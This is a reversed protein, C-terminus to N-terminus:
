RSEEWRHGNQFIFVTSSDTPMKETLTYDAWEGMKVSYIPNNKNFDWVGNTWWWNGYQNFVVHRGGTPDREVRLGDTPREMNYQCVELMEGDFKRGTALEMAEEFGSAGGFLRFGYTGRYNEPLGLIVVRKADWWRFDKILAAQMEHNEKWAGVTKKLFVFSVAFLGLFLAIRINKNLFLSLVAASMWWFIAGFYGYRDNEGWLLWYFFLNCAPAIALFFWGLGIGAWGFFLPQSERKKRFFSFAVLLFFGLFLVIGAWQWGPLDFKGFWKEKIPHEFYRLFVANKVFYKLATAAMNMPKVSLHEAAGYHGVLDHLFIKNLLFFLGWGVIGPAVLRLFWGGIKAKQGTSFAWGLVLVAVMVPFVLAIELSFIAALFCVNVLILDRPRNKELFSLAARLGFLCLVTMLLYHLCVRWIIVEASYPSILFLIAGGLLTMKQPIDLQKRATKEFIDVFFRWGLWGVAAHLGTMVILWAWGNRGFLWFLAYFFTQGVHLLGHYGFCKPVGAWGMELYRSEWGLWDTVFGAQAAPAFIAISIAWFALFLLGNKEFFFTKM